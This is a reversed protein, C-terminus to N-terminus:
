RHGEEGGGSPVDNSDHFLATQHLLCGFWPHTLTLTFHFRSAGLDRHIAELAGPSLRKPLSLRLGFVSFFYGASRFVLAGEVAHLSLAVGVGRGVYEELGTPGAFRKSSHVIQPFGGGWGYLRTWFQGQSTRDETVTVVTPEGAAYSRLPFPAGILRAATVLLRGFLNLRTELIQGSYIVSQGGALRHSFRRRVDPSLAEWAGAGMLARYRLDGLPEPAAPRRTARDQLAAGPPVRTLDAKADPEQSCARSM